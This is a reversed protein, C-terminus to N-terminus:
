ISFAQVKYDGLIVLRPSILEEAFHIFTISLWNQLKTLNQFQADIVRM